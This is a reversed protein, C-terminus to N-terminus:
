YKSAAEDSLGKCKLFLQWFFKINFIKNFLFEKIAYNKSTKRKLLGKFNPLDKKCEFNVANFIDIYKKLITNGLHYTFNQETSVRYYGHKIIPEDLFQGVSNGGLAFHSYNQEIKNFIERRYTGVFHGGGIVCKVKTKSELTLYKELHFKNYFDINGISKAFDIQAQPNKVKTFKLNKNFLNDVMINSTCYRLSRSSPTTSVFGVKLFVEFVEYTAEQWGNLFLVDADSITVLPLNMGSLGKLVSNVKGISQTITYEQIQSLKYLNIIYDNVEKCSGNAIVSIYTQSHSTKILSQISVKFVEFSQSYYGLLDPIYVPVIVQHFYTDLDVKKDRNPNSGVRM